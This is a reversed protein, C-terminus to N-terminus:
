RQAHPAVAPCDLAASCDYKQQDVFEGAHVYYRAVGTLIDGHADFDVPGSAGRYDIAKGAWLLRVGEAIGAVGANVVEGDPDNIKWMADRIQAGSLRTPDDLRATRAAQVTALMLTMAADYAPADRFQPRRTTAAALDESFAAASRGEGLLVQSTGEAGELSPGMREVLSAARFGHAHFIPVKTGTAQWAKMFGFLYKPLTIEVVVDPAVADKGSKEDRVAVLKKVDAAFDYSIPQATVVHFVQEVIAGPRDKTVAAKLANSFGRGYPEDSAYIRLNFKGDGNV